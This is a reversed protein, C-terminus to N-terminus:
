EASLAIMNKTAKVMTKVHPKQIIHAFAYNWSDFLKNFQLTLTHKAQYNMVLVQDTM